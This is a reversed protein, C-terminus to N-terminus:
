IGLTGDSLMASCMDSCSLFALFMYRKENFDLETWPLGDAEGIKFYLPSVLFIGYM